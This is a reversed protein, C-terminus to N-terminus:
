EVFHNRHGRVLFANVAYLALETAERHRQAPHRWLFVTALACFHGFHLCHQLCYNSQEDVNIARM